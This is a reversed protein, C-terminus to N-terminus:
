GLMVDLLMMTTKGISHKQIGEVEKDFQHLHPIVSDLFLLFLMGLWFGIFAPLVALKGKSREQEIAPILLSWISAAVMVGAAFGTLIKQVSEKLQNKLLYVCVAGLCTGIFPM